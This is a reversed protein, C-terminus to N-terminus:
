TFTCFYKPCYLRSLTFPSLTFPSLTILTFPHCFKGFSGHRRALDRSVRRGYIAVSCLM